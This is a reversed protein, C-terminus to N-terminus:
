YTLKFYGLNICTVNNQELWIYGAIMKCNSESHEILWSHRGAYIFVTCNTLKIFKLGSLYEVM